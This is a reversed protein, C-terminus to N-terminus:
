ILQPQLVERLIETGIKKPMTCVFHLPVRISSIPGWSKICMVLISRLLEEKEKLLKMENEFVEPSTIFLRAKESDTNELYHIWLHTLEHVPTSFHISQTNVNIGTKDVWSRENIHPTDKVDNFSKKNIKVGPVASQMIQILGNVKQETQVYENRLLQRQISRPKPNVTDVSISFGPLVTFSGDENLRGDMKVNESLRTYEDTFMKSRFKVAKREGYREVLDKYLSSPTGDANLSVPNGNNKDYITHAKAEGVITSLLKYERDNINPCNKM